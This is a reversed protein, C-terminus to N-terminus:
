KEKVIKEKKLREVMEMLPKIQKNVVYLLKVANVWYLLKTCATSVQDMTKNKESLEKNIKKLVDDVQNIQKQKLKNVKDSGEEAFKLLIDKLKFDALM